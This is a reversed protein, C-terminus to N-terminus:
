PAYRFVALHQNDAATGLFFFGGRQDACAPVVKRVVDPPPRYFGEFQGSVTSFVGVIRDPQQQLSGPVPEFTPDAEFDFYVQGSQAPGISFPSLGAFPVQIKFHEQVTGSSDLVYLKLPVSNRLLYVNGDPGSFVSGTSMSADFSGAATQPVLGHPGASASDAKTGGASINGRSSNGSDGGPGAENIKQYDDVSIDEPLALRQIVRGGSDYIATFPRRSSPDEGSIGTALFSGGPFVAFQYLWPKRGFGSLDVHVISGVSGDDNFKELYYDSTSPATETARQRTHIMGYIRGRQDVDFGVWMQNPYDAEPLPKEGYFAVQMSGTELKSVPTNPVKIDLPSYVPFRGFINGGGDCKLGPLM